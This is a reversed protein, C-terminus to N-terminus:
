KLFETVISIFEQPQEFHVLHGADLWHIDAEPFMELIEPWHERRMYSSHSGCIFTTPGPYPPLQDINTRYDEFRTLFDRLVSANCAWSFAGTEPDKRLNLMIFDVTEDETAELLKERAIKRGESMSLSPSLNLNVMADFIHKMEETGRPVSIPSIDVVILREVLEPYKRAFYMMARGGMSHGLCAAKPAQHQELFLRIDESMVRSTHVISHPSEGHNRADVTYIKRPVKRVLARSIGRWNQKSGFLGHLTILPPQTPQGEGQYVEFSMEVPESTSYSSSPTPFFGNLLLLAQLPSKGTGAPLLRLSKTLRQM